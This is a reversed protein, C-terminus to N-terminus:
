KWDVTLIKDVIAKGQKVLVHYENDSPGNVSDSVCLSSEADASTISAIDSERKVTIRETDYYNKDPAAFACRLHTTKNITVVSYWVM